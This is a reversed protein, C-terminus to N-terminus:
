LLTDRGGYFIPSGFGKFQKCRSMSHLIDGVNEGILLMRVYRLTLRLDRTNGLETIRDNTINGSLVSM